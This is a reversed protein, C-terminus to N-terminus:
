PLLMVNVDSMSRWQHVGSKCFLAAAVAGTSEGAQQANGVALILLDGEWQDVEGKDGSEQQQWDAANEHTTHPARAKAHKSALETM